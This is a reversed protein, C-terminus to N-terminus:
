WRLCVRWLGDDWVFEEYDMMESLSKMIWWRLCVRWLGDDWVFEEYDTMESLSKMIWWRLCVRWLGDDWVFEEYDMMESLSKMIWWRLCVRWLGHLTQRFHHIIFLKDFLSSGVVVCSCNIKMLCWQMKKKCALIMSNELFVPCEASKSCITKIVL